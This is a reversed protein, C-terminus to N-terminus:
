KTFNQHHGGLFINVGLFTFIIIVFGVITMIASKRGRWGSHFRFHLLAAYLLWTGISFVEKFDWSWFRGWIAKAYIFGTILGFTLLTFGTTMCTYSVNDLFDLSPLRKFFFGPNKSRIGKEQLLYLIGAGCALGLAADGTFVLVIHAVFWFGRLIENTAMPTDPILMVALMLISLLTAAFVGLIKLNFKYQFYLFMSGFAFAALSLSQVMNQVPLDRGAIGTLLISIGHVGVGVSVLFFSIKQIKDKQDFLFLLYGAMSFFYLLTALQLMISASALQYEM